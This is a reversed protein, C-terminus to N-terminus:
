GQAPQQQALRAYFDVKALFDLLAIDTRSKGGMIAEFDPDGITLVRDSMVTGNELCLSCAAQMQRKEYDVSFSKLQVHTLILPKSLNGLQRTREDM